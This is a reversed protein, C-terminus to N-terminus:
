IIYCCNGSLTIYRTENGLTNEAVCKYMGFDEMSTHLIKLVHKTKMTQKDDDTRKLPGHHITILGKKHIIEKDDKFWKIIAPPNASVICSMESEIKVGSHIINRKVEVEPRDIM